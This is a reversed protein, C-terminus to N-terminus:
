TPAPYHSPGDGAWRRHTCGGAFMPGHARGQLEEDAQEVEFRYLLVDEAADLRVLIPLTDKAPLDGPLREHGGAAGDVVAVHM